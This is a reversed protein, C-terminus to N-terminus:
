NSPKVTIIGILLGNAYPLPTNYKVGKVDEWSAEKWENGKSIRLLHCQKSFRIIGDKLLKDLDSNYGLPLTIIIIGGRSTILSKMNEIARPIKMNDRPKEDWGVHELTSISVVLDYRKDPRYDVVDENIIGRAIEYKDLIDHEFKVHNSLVNGIELINTGQYKRVLEMVIPIEIARENYWTKLTDFYRYIKGLALVTNHRRVKRFYIFYLLSQFGNFRFVYRIGPSKPLRRNLFVKM